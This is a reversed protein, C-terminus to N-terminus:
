VFFDNLPILSETKEVLDKVWISNQALENEGIVACYRANIRDAGKLHAKLSRPEYEVVAKESRRAKEACLLIPKIAVADMAGLYYGDRVTEPMVILEMLREIGLAFGVAPTPKGDLFEILRDYRGGGAIASQSGINDSVFEFATKSYYDLGRVLHTDIEYGINHQDLITKLTDFDSQCGECLHNILKPANAYLAQCAENKCDLVRIPNTSKRRQCDGCITDGCSEIFAILKERYSPMCNQDGLSNLKLRYGIGLAKLIDAVMMIMLADEYVSDVGFSEVGFQHFQRLRGKQPREYRFMAGHYYFRHIGGKKDLKHQVFARVVGATGEPRLCVDNDGKDIFQYMEKGVIDSSEGVSRKFLATEELLPTEIYHFGYRKAITSATTIFYEFREYDESLIDNMGRLSQIM